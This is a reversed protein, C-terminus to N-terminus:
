VEAGKEVVYVAQSLIQTKSSDLVFRTIVQKPAELLDRGDAKAMIKIPTDIASEVAIHATLMYKGGSVRKIEVSNVRVKLPVWMGAQGFSVTPQYDLGYAGATLSQSILINAAGTSTKIVQGTTVDSEGIVSSKERFYADGISGSDDSVFFGSPVGSKDLGPFTLQSSKTIKKVTVSKRNKSVGDVEEGPPSSIQKLEITPSGFEFSSMTSKVNAQNPSKVTSAGYFSSFGFFALVVLVLSFAVRQSDEALRAARKYTKSLLDLATLGRAEDVVLQSLVKRLSSRARSVTHRVSSENIGLVQAIEGTTRGEVEWMVLATREAASLLSLADRVIAADEAAMLREESQISEALRLEIEASVEDLLVLPPQRGEKRFEDMCLNRITRHLYSLAHDKSQLEPAALLVKILSDQVVEDARASNKLLRVAHNKLESRHQSYFAGLDAVTWSDIAQIEKRFRM